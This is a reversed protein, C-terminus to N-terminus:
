KIMKELSGEVREIREGGLKRGENRSWRKMIM